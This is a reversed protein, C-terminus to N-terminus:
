DLEYPLHCSGHKPACSLRGFKAHTTILRPKHLKVTLDDLWADQSATIARVESTHANASRGMRLMSGHALALEAKAYDRAHQAVRLDAQM